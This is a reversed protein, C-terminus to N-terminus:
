PEIVYGFGRRTQLVGSAGAAALKKRLHCVLVEVVNTGAFSDSNHIEQLLKEKSLVVGRQLALAEFVSYEAPTLSIEGDNGEVSKSATNLILPGVEIVPSKEDHRRRVLTAIRACLEEFAFPKVMYDDAGLELGRVRDEIRDMASLILIHSDKGIQRLRQLVDLGHMGPLMLDLVIVGYDNFRAYDLGERGDGVLDVAYGAKKLGRGLSRRLRESDEIVLLKM